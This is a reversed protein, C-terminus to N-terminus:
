TRGQAIRFVEAETLGYIRAITSVPVRDQTFARVIERSRRQRGVPRPANGAPRMERFYANLDSEDLQAM